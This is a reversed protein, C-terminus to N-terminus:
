PSFIRRSGGSPGDRHVRLVRRQDTVGDADQLLRDQSLPRIFVRFRSLRSRRDHQARSSTSTEHVAHAGDGLGGIGDITPCGVAAAFNGDSVGGTRGEELGFGLEAGLARADKFLGVVEDTRLVPSRNIGETVEVSRSRLSEFPFERLPPAWTKRV